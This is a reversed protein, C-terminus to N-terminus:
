IIKRSFVPPFFFSRGASRARASHCRAVALIAALGTETENGAATGGGRGPLKWRPSAPNRAKGPVSEAKPAIM